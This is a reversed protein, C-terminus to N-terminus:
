LENRPFLKKLAILTKDAEQRDSEKEKESLDDYITNMQRTWHDVKTSPITMSGNDDHTCTSFLYEMWHSWSEHAREALVERLKNM